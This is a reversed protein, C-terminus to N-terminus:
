GNLSADFFIEVQEKVRYAAYTAGVKISGPLRTKIVREPNLIGDTGSNIITDFSSIFRQLFYKMLLSFM